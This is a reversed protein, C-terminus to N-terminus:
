SGGGRGRGRRGRRNGRGPSRQIIHPAGEISLGKSSVIADTVKKRGAYLLRQLTGRSVGMQEAAQSQDMDERDCLRMAELEDLQLNNISLNQLPIGAPKFTSPGEFDRCYRPKKSRPM